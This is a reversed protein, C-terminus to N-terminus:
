TRLRNSNSLIPDHEHILFIMGSISIRSSYKKKNASFSMCDSIDLNSFCLNVAFAAVKHKANPFLCNLDHILLATCSSEHDRSTVKMNNM